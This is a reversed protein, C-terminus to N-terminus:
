VNYQLTHATNCSQIKGRHGLPLADAELAATKPEFGAKRTPRLEKANVGAQDAWGGM